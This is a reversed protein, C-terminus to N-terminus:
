ILTPRIRVWFEAALACGYLKDGANITKIHTHKVFYMFAGFFCFRFFLPHLPCFIVPQTHTHTHSYALCFLAILSGYLSRLRKDRKFGM